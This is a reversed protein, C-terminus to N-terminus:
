QISLSQAAAIIFDAVESPHSVMSVHSAALELVTAHIMKSEARLLEPNIIQDNSAVISWSPKTKWAATTIKETTSKGAWPVQTAFMIRRQEATVDPAFYKDMGKFSLTLYGDGDLQFEANGPAPPFAKVVDEVSQGDNPILSSVYLLGAVKPDNGAESIVFGAWSHGVLLVPGDMSSIARRTAFVDDSLSTLPNQVAIVNLGKKQLLPIVNAWSSGDAFAGHVLVINKVSTSTQQQAMIPPTVLLICLIGTSIFQKYTKM